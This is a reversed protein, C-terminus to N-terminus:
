SLPLAQSAQRGEASDKLKGSQVMSTAQCNIKEATIKVRSTFSGGAM